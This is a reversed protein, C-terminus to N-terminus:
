KDEILQIKKQNVSDSKEPEKAAPYSTHGLQPVSEENLIKVYFFWLLLKKSLIQDISRKRDGEEKESEMERFDCHVPLM